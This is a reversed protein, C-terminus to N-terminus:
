ATAAFPALDRMILMDRWTSPSRGQAFDMAAVNGHAGSSMIEMLDALPEGTYISDMTSWRHEAVRAAQAADDGSAMAMRVLALGEGADFDPADYPADAGEEVLVAGATVGFVMGLAAPMPGVDADSADFEAQIVEIRDPELSPPILDAVTVGPAGIASVTTAPLAAIAARQDAHDLFSGSGTRRAALADELSAMTAACILVDDVFALNNFAAFVKAQLPNRIEFEGDEGITWVTEGGPASKREYGSATWAAELRGADLGGRFLTLENPPAGALLTQDVGLPQFGLESVLDETLAYRYASSATALAMSAPLWPENDLDPGNADHHLNMAAFQQAIDAYYWFVGSGGERDIHSAPVFSLLHALTVPIGAEPTAEPPMHGDQAGARPGTDLGALAAVGISKLIARRDCRNRNKM